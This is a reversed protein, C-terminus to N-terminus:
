MVLSLASSPRQCRFPQAPRDHCARSKCVNQGIVRSHEVQERQGNINVDALVCGKGGAEHVAHLFLANHFRDNGGAPVVARHVDEPSLASGAGGDFRYPWGDRDHDDVARFVGLPM